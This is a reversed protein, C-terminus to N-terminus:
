GHRFRRRYLWEGLFLAGMMAYSLLGNYFVWTERSAFVTAVTVALHVALFATWVRTVNRCYAIGRADLEAGSRRAFIEAVPTRFLSFSFVALAVAVMIAPYLRFWVKAKLLYIAWVIGLSLAIRLVSKM